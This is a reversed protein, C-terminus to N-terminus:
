PKPPAVEPKPPPTAVTTLRRTEEFRNAMTLTVDYQGPKVGSIVGTMMPKLMGVQVGNVTVTVWGLTENPIRLDATPGVHPGAPTGSPPVPLPAVPMLTQPFTAPDVFLDRFDQIPGATDYPENPFTSVNSALAPPAALAAVALLVSLLRM